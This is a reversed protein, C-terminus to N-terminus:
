RKRSTKRRRAGCCCSCVSGTVRGRSRVLLNTLNSGPLLLSASSSMSVVGYLFALEAVARVRAAHVLVPTLFLVSTDLNLVVTVAVVLALLSAYLVITGGPLRALASGDAQFLGDEAAVLGVLLLGTV